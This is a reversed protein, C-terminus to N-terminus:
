KKNVMARVKLPLGFLNIFGTADAQNYVDDHEFTVFEKSYLSYDSKAGASIINGKYLKLKVTGTVTEQTKDVFAALAERLQCFWMGDYVLEGYKIGVHQKFHFTARDLCLYELERHAYYLISGAPNEYVGRSKMGVLRNECIDVIGVGNRAGIENLETILAVSDKRVGNIAVPIGKEFDISIEEPKDPADEPAKSILFMSNKPANWPDELDSGEHSLHWINRDMSYKKNETPIEINHAKAYEIESERSDLDWERWPAIIKLEPALAKVTLEFRVQDNGKGTAGHAIADANEAKAIEVLKKAIIPRAFSTGLLYKEEYVANAKLTPFIYNEIFDKTLDEIYVKSAGSKLAKDHVPGLEDGQGVDACVAIVECGYNEKLWPIIVSTDLGGSYALVVKSVKEKM